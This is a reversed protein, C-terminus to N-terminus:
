AGSDRVDVSGDSSYVVTCDAYEFTATGQEGDPSRFLADLADPDLVEYLPPLAMPDVNRHAAVASVVAESPSNPDDSHGSGTASM